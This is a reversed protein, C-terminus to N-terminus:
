KEKMVTKIEQNFSEHKIQNEEEKKEMSDIHVITIPVDNSPSKIEAMNILRPSDVIDVNFNPNTNVVISNSTANENTETTNTSIEHIAVANPIDLEKLQEQVLEPKIEISNSNYEKINMSPSDNSVIDVNFNANNPTSTSSSNNLNINENSSTINSTPFSTDSMEEEMKEEM